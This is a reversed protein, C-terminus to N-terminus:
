GHGQQASRVRRTRVLSTGVPWAGAIKPGYIFNTATNIYFNGNVGVGSTPNSTGYLVTNGAAGTAGQPGTAGVPGRPEVLSVGAPWAGGAKPGYWFNTATNIYFNGNVGTGATPNSAGYLVTNGNVGAPGPM